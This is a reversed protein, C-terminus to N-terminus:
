KLLNRAIIEKMIETTGGFIRQVRADIYAQSISYEEMFGYGGYFQLCADAVRGLTESCWYKAKSAAVSIDEGANFQLICRDVFAECLSIETDLEALKFRTNQFEAVPKGFVQRDKCYRVAEELIGQANAVCFIAMSLRERGLGHMIYKFAEGEQGLLNEAPIKCNNFYLEATDQGQLGIKELRRGREFGPTGAEVIFLSQKVKRKGDSSAVTEADSTNAVVIVIDSSIGNSIFTKQGSLVWENGQRTARMRIGRLDSGAGPETMAIAGLIEGSAMKPLYKKKQAENGHEQIYPAVIDSHLYLPLSGAGVRAIEENVVASYRFDLGLGGYEEAQTICLFGQAGASLYVERPIMGTKNWSKYHPLIEKKLWSKVSDQFRLLDEDLITKHM